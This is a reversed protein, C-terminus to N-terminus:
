CYFNMNKIYEDAFKEDDALEYHVANASIRDCKEKMHCNLLFLSVGKGAGNGILKIKEVDGPLLGIYIGNDINIYNGFAGSVLVEDIEELSTGYVRLLSECGSYISSKAL